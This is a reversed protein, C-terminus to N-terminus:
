PLVGEELSRVVEAYATGGTLQLFLDELSAMDKQSLVKLEDITGCAILRGRDIIGVRNCIREAIEMIHTSMFITVGRGALMRLTDKLIRASRPDLGTLPEDLILVSPDHVLAAAVALKQRMGRSYSQVLEDAREELGFLHLLEAVRDIRRKEDVRYLDAMFSLFERGTLKEYLFPEDPVYGLIAKARLPEAHIDYGGIFARGATPRLLGTLMRITTTKGAGNPGLFGFIEGPVVELDLGDVATFRGFRKTLRETKIM